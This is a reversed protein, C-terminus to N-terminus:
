PKRAELWVHKRLTPPLIMDTFGTRNNFALAARQLLNKKKMSM